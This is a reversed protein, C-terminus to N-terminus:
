SGEKKEVARVQDFALRSSGEGHGTAKRVGIWTRVKGDYWRTQQFSQSLEAGSRPVEEENIFYPKCEDEDLGTRLLVTRPRVKEYKKEDNELIRPMAARQLRIARKSDDKHVPIFPIWNEPVSNMLEYRIPAKYDRAEPVVTGAGVAKDLIQQFRNRLEYAAEGGPKNKGSPLPVISEIGWVMNAIEDRILYIKELPPGEMVKSTTPLILLSNDAREGTNGKTNVSFLSWKNWADDLGKGAAEIWFKEGFVNTVTMGRISAISGADLTFPFLFWDNAYRLAFEMFLLKGIEQTGPNVDGFNTRGDEFTWWRTNPMGEFNVQVPIFSDPPPDSIATVGTTEGLSQLKPDIDFNYWDLHGHYYEDATLVMEKDKLPASCRFSYELAAPNWANETTDGPVEYLKEFWKIFKGAAVDIASKDSVATIATIGDYAHHASNKKLHLYLDGGDMCRGAAAAFQQWADKHATISADARNNVDPMKVAYRKIFETRFGLSDTMKLWQRGMLLRIDLAIKQEGVLFTLPMKEVRTELPHEHDFDRAPHDAAAYKTIQTIGMKVKSFVPSGADDGKFEGMQWQKCLMWLPDRVEARLTRDFNDTRARPEMRNWLTVSPIVRATLVEHIDDIAVFKNM